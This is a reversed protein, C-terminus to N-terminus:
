LMENPVSYGTIFLVFGRGKLFKFYVTIKPFLGDYFCVDDAELPNENVTLGQDDAIDIIECGKVIYQIDAYVAHGEFRCEAVPKTTYVMHNVYANESLEYRKSESESTLTGLFAFVEALEPHLALYRAKNRINDIIM